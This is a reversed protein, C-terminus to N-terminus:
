KSFAAAYIESQEPLHTIYGVPIKNDTAKIIERAGEEGFAGCLEICGIGDNYLEKAIKAAEKISSVGIIRAEGNHIEARDAASNFDGSILFAFKMDTVDSDSGSKVNNRSTKHIKINFILKTLFNSTTKASNRPSM